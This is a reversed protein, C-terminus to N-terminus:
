DDSDKANDNDKEGSNEHHRCLSFEQSCQVKRPYGYPEYIAFNRFRKSLAQVQTEVGVTHLYDLSLILAGVEGTWIKLSNNIFALSSDKDNSAPTDPDLM